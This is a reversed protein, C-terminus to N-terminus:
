HNAGVPIETLTAAALANRTPYEESRVIVVIKSNMLSAVLIHSQAVCRDERQIIELKYMKTITSQNNDDRNELRFEQCFVIQRYNTVVTTYSSLNCVECTPQNVTYGTDM